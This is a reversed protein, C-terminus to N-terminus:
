FTKKLASCSLSLSVITLNPIKMLNTSLLFFLSYRRVQGYLIFMLWRWGWFWIGDVFFLYHPSFAAKSTERSENGAAKATAVSRESSENLHVTSFLSCCYARYVFVTARLHIVTSSYITSSMPETRPGAQQRQQLWLSLHTHTVLCNTHKPIPHHNRLHRLAFM